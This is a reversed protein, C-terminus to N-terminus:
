LETEYLEKYVTGKSNLVSEFLKVSDVEITGFSHDKFERMTRKLKKKRDGHVNEVRLLTIHPKFENDSDENVQHRSIERYLQYVADNPAGAWIVRIFDESPFAGIGKIELQFPSIELSEMAKKIKGTERESVNQFFQLTIHMKEQKVPNFGLDLSDRVNSLEGLVKENEVDIASFIRAM